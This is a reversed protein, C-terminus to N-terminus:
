NNDYPVVWIEQTLGRSNYRFGMKKIVYDKDEITIFQAINLMRDVNYNKSKLKKLQETPTLKLLNNKGYRKVKPWFVVKTKM